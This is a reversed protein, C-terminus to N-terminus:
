VGAAFASVIALATISITVSIVLTSVTGIPFRQFRRSDRSSGRNLRGSNYDMYPIFGIYEMFPIWQPHSHTLDFDYRSILFLQHSFM